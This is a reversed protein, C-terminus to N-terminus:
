DVVVKKVSEMAGAWTVEMVKAKRGVWGEGEATDASAEVAKEVEEM